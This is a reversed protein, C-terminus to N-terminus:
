TYSDRSIEVCSTISQNLIIRTCHLPQSSYIVIAPRTVVTLRCMVCLSAQRYSNLFKNHRYQLSITIHRSMGGPLGSSLVDMVAWRNAIGPCCHRPLRQGPFSLRVTTNGGNNRVFKKLCYVQIGASVFSDNAYCRAFRFGEVLNEM